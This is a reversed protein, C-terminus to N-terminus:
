VDQTQSQKVREHFLQEQKIQLKLKENEKLLERNKAVM